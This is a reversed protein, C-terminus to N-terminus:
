DDHMMREFEDIDDLNNDYEPLENSIGLTTRGPIGYAFDKGGLKEILDGAATQLRISVL